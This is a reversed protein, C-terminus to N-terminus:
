TTAVAAEPSALKMVSSPDVILHVMDRSDFYAAVGQLVAKTVYPVLGISDWGALALDKLTPFAPALLKRWELDTADITREQYHRSREILRVVQEHVGASRAVETRASAVVARLRDMTNLQGQAHELEARLANVRATLGAAQTRYEGSRHESQSLREREEALLARLIRADDASATSRAVSEEPEDSHLGLLGSGTEDVKATGFVHELWAKQQAETQADASAGVVDKPDPLLRLVFAIVARELADAHARHVRDGKDRWSQHVHQIRNIAQALHKVRESAPSQREPWEPLLPRENWEVEPWQAAAATKLRAWHELQEFVDRLVPDTFQSSGEVGFLALAGQAHESSPRGRFVPLADIRQSPRSGKDPAVVPEPAATLVSAGEPAAPSMSAPSSNVRSKPARTPPPAASVSAPAIADVVAKGAVVTTLGESSPKTAPARVEQPPAVSVNLARQRAQLDALANPSAKYILKSM